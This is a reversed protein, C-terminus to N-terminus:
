GRCAFYDFECRGNRWVFCPPPGCDVTLEHKDQKSRVRMPHDNQNGFGPERPAGQVTISGLMILLLCLYFTSGM